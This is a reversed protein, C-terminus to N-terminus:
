GCSQLIKLKFYELDRFGYARRKIVNIKTNFGESQANTLGHIFYNRIGYLYNKMTKVVTEFQELGSKAVNAFWKKLREMAKVEDNEEFIDLVQEKLVYSKYLKQNLALLDNLTERKEDTLRKQRSLILFRKKKMTKREVPDAKAFEKRRIKDLAENVKKAIHFKDFIIAANTNAQISAIYPDWMDCVALEINWSKLMGLKKFFEDLTEKKRATGVWIVKGLDADRVVTLYKQGKQYAIEDVGIKTPTVQELDVVLERLKAKDINKVSKWNLKMIRGVDALSM